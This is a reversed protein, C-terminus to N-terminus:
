QVRMGCSDCKGYDQCVTKLESAMSRLLHEVDCIRKELKMMARMSVPQSEIQVTESFAERNVVPDGGASPVRSLIDFIEELDRENLNTAKKLADADTPDDSGHLLQDFESKSIHDRSSRAINNFIDELMKNTAATKEEHEEQLEEDRHMNTANIMNDSVVATLISLIAWTSIVTFMIFVVKTFPLRIFLPELAEWDGNMSRFLVFMSEFVTPFIQTVAADVPAGGFLLGHGVLKVGLLAFAYLLVTTLVLVWGMGQMAQVIGVILTYLPPISKVLRVLRLIRLLRAMRLITMVQGMSDSQGIEEEGMLHDVVSIMPMLWQDVIGGFVIIFDLWNWILDSTSFFFECGSHRLRVLLEFTFIVLLLQEVYYWLFFDPIDAELGMLISNFGIVGMIFLQFTPGEAWSLDAHLFVGIIKLVRSLRLMRLFSLISPGKRQEPMIHMLVFLPRVWMDVVGSVVIIIDLYNWWVVELKGCLLKGQMLIAKLTLEMLYFSMFLHDLYWWRDEYKPDVMELVMIVLNALIVLTALFHFGDSEVCRLIDPGAFEPRPDPPELLLLKDQMCAERNKHLQAIEEEIEMRRKEWIASLEHLRKRRDEEQRHMNDIQEQLMEPDNRVIEENFDRASTGMVHMAPSIGRLRDPRPSFRAPLRGIEQNWIPEPEVPVPIYGYDSSHLM